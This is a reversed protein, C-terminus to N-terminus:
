WTRGGGRNNESSFWSHALEASYDLQLLKGIEAVMATRDRAGTLLYVREEIHIGRSTLYHHGYFPRDEEFGKGIYKAVYHGVDGVSPSKQYARHNAMSRGWRNSEYRKCDVQRNHLCDEGIIRGWITKLLQLQQWGHVAIHWHVAGRKQREAAAVFKWGPIAKRVQRVFSRLHGVSAKLNEENRWYTLTLLHDAKLAICRERVTRQARARTRERERLPDRDQPTYGISLVAVDVTIQGGGLDRVRAKWEVPRVRRGSEPRYYAHSEREARSAASNEYRIFDSRSEAVSAIDVAM